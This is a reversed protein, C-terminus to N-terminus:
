SSAGASMKDPSSVVPIADSISVSVSFSFGGFSVAFPKFFSFTGGLRGPTAPALRGPVVEVDDAAFGAVEEAVRVVPPNLLGGVRGM